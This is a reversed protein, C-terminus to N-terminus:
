DGGLRARIGKLYGARDDAGIFRSVEALAASAERRTRGATTPGSMTAIVDLTKCARLLAKVLAPSAPSAPVTGGSAVRASTEAGHTGAGKGERPDVSSRCDRDEAGGREAIPFGELM